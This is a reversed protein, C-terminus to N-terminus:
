VNAKVKPLSPVHDPTIIHSRLRRASERDLYFGVGWQTSIKIGSPLKARLKCIYVDIIKVDQGNESLYIADFISERKVPMPSRALLFSLIATASATLQFEPDFAVPPVLMDRLQRVEEELEDVRERLKAALSMDSM